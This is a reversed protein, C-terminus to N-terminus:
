CKCPTTWVWPSYKPMLNSSSCCGSNHRCKLIHQIVVYSKYYLCYMSCSHQAQFFQMKYTTMWTLLARGDHVKEMRLNGHKRCRDASIFLGHLVAHLFTTHAMNAIACVLKKRKSQCHIVGEYSWLPPLPFCDLGPGGFLQIFKSPSSINEAVTVLEKLNM